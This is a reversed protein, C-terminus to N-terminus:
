GLVVAVRDLMALQAVQDDPLHRPLGIAGQPPSLAQYAEETSYWYTGRGLEPASHPDDTDLEVRFPVYLATHDGPYDDLRAGPLLYDSSDPLGILADVEKILEDGVGLADTIRTLFRAIQSKDTPGTLWNQESYPFSPGQDTDVLAVQNGITLAAMAVPRYEVLPYEGRPGTQATVIHAARLARDSIKEPSIM